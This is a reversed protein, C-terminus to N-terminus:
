DLAFDIALRESAGPAVHLLDLGTALAGGRATWPEVCIFDKGPQTWVVLVTFHPTWALRLSPSQGRHLAAAARTQGQLHLDVEPGAFDVPAVPTDRGAVNDFARTASHELRAAAKQAVPVRFYPHIGLHLPLPSPGPNSVTWALHLARPRLGVEFRLRFDFPFLARSTADSALECALCLPGSPDVPTWPRQRAFGHQALPSGPAPKGPSPFLQPVGGRVSKAPDLLTAEDLYLVEDGDVTWRTVLGGRAPVLEVAAQAQELRLATLGGPLSRSTISAM